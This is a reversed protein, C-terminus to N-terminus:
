DVKPTDLVPADAAQQGATSGPAALQEGESARSAWRSSCSYWSTISSRRSSPRSSHRSSHRSSPRSNPRSNPRSSPRSSSNINIDEESCSTCLESGWQQQCHQLGGSAEAELLRMEEAAESTGQLADPQLLLLCSDQQPLAAGAAGAATTSGSTLVGATMPAAAAALILTHIHALSDATYASSNIGSHSAPLALTTLNVDSAPTLDGKGDNSSPSCRGQQAPDGKAPWKCHVQELQQLDIPDASVASDQLSPQQEQQQMDQKSQQQQKEEKEQQQQQPNQAQLTELTQQLRSITAAAAAAEQQQFASHELQQQLSHNHSALRGCVWKHAAAASLALSLQERLKQQQADVTAIHQQLQSDKIAATKTMQALATDAALVQAELLEAEAHMHQLDQQSVALTSLAARLREHGETLAAATQAERQQTMEHAARENQLEQQQTELRQQLESLQQQPNRYQELTSELAKSHQKAAAAAAKYKQKDAQAASLETQIQHLESALEAAMEVAAAAESSKVKIQQEVAAVRAKMHNCIEQLKEL